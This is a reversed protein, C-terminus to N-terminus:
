MVSLCLLLGTIAVQSVLGPMLLSDRKKIMFELSQIQKTVEQLKLIDVDIKYNMPM